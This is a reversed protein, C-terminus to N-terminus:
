PASPVTCIPQEPRYQWNRRMAAERLRKAKKEIESSSNDAFNIVAHSPQCPKPDPMASLGEQECEAVTVALVGISSLGKGVTYQEYAKDATILDGDDVSLQGEDKPTPKFAQSTVHNGKLWNPHVQRFLLSDSKM